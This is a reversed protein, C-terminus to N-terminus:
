IMMCKGPVDYFSLDTADPDEILVCVVNRSFKMANKMSRLEDISKTHFNSPFVNPNLIAAQARRLWVEVESKETITRGFPVITPKQEKGNVDVGIRLTITCSWSEANSSM